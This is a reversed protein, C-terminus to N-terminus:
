HAKYTQAILIFQAGAEPALMIGEDQRCTWAGCAFSILARGQRGDIAALSIPIAAMLIRLGYIREVATGLSAAASAAKTKPGM